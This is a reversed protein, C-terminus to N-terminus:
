TTKRQKIICYEKYSIIEDIKSIYVRSDDINYKECFEDVQEEDFVVKRLDAGSLDAGSLDARRLDARRLDVERLDAERLDAGNLDAGNLYARRLDAGNLYAEFLNAGGLYVGSLDAGDLDADSLDARSLNARRLDAKRLDAMNLNAGYLFAECLNAESLDAGGLYVGSLDAGSLDAGSLNLKLLGSHLLYFVINNDSKGLKLNWLHVVELMNAFINIERVIIDKYKGQAYYTMGDRLMINFVEKTIDSLSYGEMSEFKYKIYELIQKSLHGDKLLEGLKGAVEEKSTLKNISEFFYVAVFYEYISRHVFQIGDTEKGECYKLKYFNGILVDRQIDESKKGSEIMENECIEEFEKQSIFVEDANDEFMGFAIRQSIKHIHKKIEPANIRHEIDYCRDYIGGKKLSFIQDYIEVISSSEEIDVNLALVMYLILPIGFIEQNELIKNIKDGLINNKVTEPHKRASEQEYNECFSKIQEENWAQLIIYEVNGLDSKDIYNERCTIILSFRQLINMVKLEQNLKKLIRERDCNAYIEDFGDLILTKGEVEERKLGIIKFIENLINDETWNVNKLDSAFQYVLIHDKQEVLNSLIWTILTSKGVGAQGLILFMKKDNNDVIYERLLNKLDYSMKDNMKWKYHPLHEKLYLKSLKINVGANEDREHFNNLFVNKNWRDAYEKARNEIPYKSSNRKEFVKKNVLENILCDLKREIEEYNLYSKRFGEQIYGNAQEQQLIIVEIALDRNEKKCIECCLSLLFDECTAGTVQLGLMELGARVADIKNVKSNKLGKLIKEVADYLVDQGRYKDNTFENLADITVQYIKTEMCQEHAKRNKDADKIKEKLVDVCDNVVKSVFGSIIMGSNIPM